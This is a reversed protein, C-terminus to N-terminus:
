PITMEILVEMKKPGTELYRERFNAQEKADPTIIGKEPRTIRNGCDKNEEHFTKAGAMDIGFLKSIDEDKAKIIRASKVKARKLMKRSERKVMKGVFDDTRIGRLSFFSSRSKM